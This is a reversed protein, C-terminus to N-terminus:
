GQDEKDSKASQGVGIAKMIDAVLAESPLFLGEEHARKAAQCLRQVELISHRESHLDDVIEALMEANDRPNDEDSQYWHHVPGIGKLFQQANM